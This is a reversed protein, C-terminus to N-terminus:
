IEALFDCRGAVCWLGEPCRNDDSGCQSGLNCDSSQCTQSLPECVLGARCRRSEVGRTPNDPNVYACDDGLGGGETCTGTTYDCILDDACESDHICADDLGVGPICRGQYSGSILCSLGSACEIGSSLTCPEDAERRGELLNH